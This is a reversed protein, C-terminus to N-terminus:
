AGPWPRPATGPQFSRKRRRYEAPYLLWTGYTNKAQGPKFCGQGFLAAAQDGASGSIPTGELMKLARSNGIVTGYVMSSPVPHPLM